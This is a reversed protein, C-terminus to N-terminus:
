DLLTVRNLTNFDDNVGVSTILISTRIFRNDNNDNKANKNIQTWGTNAAMDTVTFPCDLLTTM